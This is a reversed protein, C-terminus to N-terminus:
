FFLIILFCKIFFLIKGFIPFQFLQSYSNWIQSVLKIYSQFFLIEIFLIRAAIEITNAAPRRKATGGLANAVWFSAHV